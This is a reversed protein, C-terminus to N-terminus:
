RRLYFTSGIDLYFLPTPCFTHYVMTSLSVLKPKPDLNLNWSSWKETQAKPCLSPGQSCWKRDVVHSHRYRHVSSISPRTHRLARQSIFGWDPRSDSSSQESHNWGLVVLGLFIPLSADRTSVSESVAIQHQCHSPLGQPTVDRPSHLLPLREVADFPRRWGWSARPNRRDKSHGRISVFARPRHTGETVLLQSCAQPLPHRLRIKETPSVRM